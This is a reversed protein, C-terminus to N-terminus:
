NGIKSRGRTGRGEAIQGGEEASRAAELRKELEAVAEGDGAERAMEIAKEAEARGEEIRGDAILAVALTGRYRHAEGNLEVARRALEVAEASEARLGGKRTALLWALNNLDEAVDQNQGVLERLTKIGRVSNGLQDFLWAQLRMARADGSRRRNYREVVELAQKLEGRKALVAARIGDLDTGGSQFYAAREAIEMAESTNGDDMAYEAVALNAAEMNPRLELARKMAERAGKEDGAIELHIAALWHIEADEPNNALAREYALQAETAKTGQPKGESGQQRKQVEARRAGMGRASSFVEMQLLSEVQGWMIREAAPTYLMRAKAEDVRDPFIEWWGQADAWNNTRTGLLEALGDVMLAAVAVRGEFTLHVHELFFDRDTLPGPNGEHLWIDADVLVVDKTAMEAVVERQVGRVRSDARFRMEDLDCARRFFEWAEEMQDAAQLEEAKEYAALASTEVGGEASELPPWDTLNVAPVCILVKSGAELAMGAMARFNSKAQEAVRSVAPDDWALVEERFEDLGRWEKTDGGAMELLETMARGTRTQLAALGVQAWLVGPAQRGFVNAAGYPGIVENNGAYLVVADPDTRLGERVFVRLVQSSVGVSTMDVVEMKGGPFEKEWLVKLVRALSYEPLPHGAAASEGVLLVRRTGPTREVPIFFRQDRNVNDRGLVRRTYEPEMVWYRKGGHEVQRLVEVPEFKGTLFLAGELTAFFALPGAVVLAARGIYIRWRNFDM